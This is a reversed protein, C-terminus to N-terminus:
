QADDPVIFARPWRNASFFGYRSYGQPLYTCLNSVYDVAKRPKTVGKADCHFLRLKAAAAIGREIAEVAHTSDFDDSLNM